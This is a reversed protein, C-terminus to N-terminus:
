KHAMAFHLATLNNRRLLAVTEARNRRVFAEWETVYPNNQAAKRLSVRM